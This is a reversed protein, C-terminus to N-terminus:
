LQNVIGRKIVNDVNENANFYEISINPHENKFVRFVEDVFAQGVSEVGKFDLIIQKFKDLGVLLRKAQSRSIHPNGPDASLAVAVITKGFGIEQNSYQDMVQKLTKTSNVSLNMTIYTGKGFDKRKEQSLFWEENEFIYYMDDSLISFSDFARSTFFIGEGTHNKPDTTFKGKSLHLIGERISELKLAEQIKRFIGIGNDLISITIVNNKIELRTYIRTGESHFIANNLIETYGYFCITQMNDPFKLLMPKIYTSWIKDESISSKTKVEFEIFGGEILFYNVWRSQGVKIIKGERIERTIYQYARQRSFGFREAILAVIDKPHSKLQDFIFEKVEIRTKNM